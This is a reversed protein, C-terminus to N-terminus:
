PNTCHGAFCSNAFGPCDDDDDCQNTDQSTCHGAFCSNAFGPCDDDDDCLTDDESTCYGAFCSNAFGPCDDDDDCKRKMPHAIGLFEAVQAGLISDASSMPAADSHVSVVSLMFLGLIFRCM